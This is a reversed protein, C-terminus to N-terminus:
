EGKYLYNVIEDEIFGIKNYWYNICTDLVKQNSSNTSELTVLYERISDIHKLKMAINTKYEEM